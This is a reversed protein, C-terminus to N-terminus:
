FVVRKSKKITELPDIPGNEKEYKKVSRTISQRILEALTVNEKIAIAKLKNIIELPARIGIVDSPEARKSRAAKHAPITTEEQEVIEEPQEDQRETPAPITIKTGLLNKIEEKGASNNKSM